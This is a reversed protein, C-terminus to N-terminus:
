RLLGGRDDLLVGGHSDLLYGGDGRGTQSTPRALSPGEVILKASRTTSGRGNSVNTFAIAPGYTGPSLAIASSNVM